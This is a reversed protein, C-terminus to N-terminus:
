DFATKSIRIVLVDSFFVRGPKYNHSQKEIIIIRRYFMYRAITKISCATGKGKCIRGRVATTYSFSVIEHRWFLGVM